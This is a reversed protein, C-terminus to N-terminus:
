ISTDIACAMPASSKVAKPSGDPAVPGNGFRAYPDFDRRIMVGEPTVQTDGFRALLGPRASRLAGKVFAQGSSM